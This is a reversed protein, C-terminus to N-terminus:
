GILQGLTTNGYGTMNAITSAGALGYSTLSTGTSVLDSMRIDGIPTKEIVYSLAQNSLSNFQQLAPDQLAKTLQQEYNKL